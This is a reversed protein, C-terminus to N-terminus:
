QVTNFHPFRNIASKLNNLNEQQEKVFALEEPDLPEGEERLADIASDLDKLYEEILDKMTQM